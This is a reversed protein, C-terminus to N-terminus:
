FLTSLGVRRNISFLDEVGARQNTLEVFEKRQMKNRYLGRSSRDKTTILEKISGIFLL